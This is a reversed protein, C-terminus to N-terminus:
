ISRKANPLVPHPSSNNTAAKIVIAITMLAAVFLEDGWGTKGFALLDM